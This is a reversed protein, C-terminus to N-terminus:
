SRKGIRREKSRVRGSNMSSTLRKLDNFSSLPILPEALEHRYLKTNGLIENLYNVAIHTKESLINGAYVISSGRNIILDNVLLKLKEESLSYKEAVSSLSYNSIKGSNLKGGIENILALVFELQADPRLRFRYDANMGTISMNGEVVYLRNFNKPDNIDRGKVFRRSNEIQSRFLTTYPFLTSKTHRRRMLS